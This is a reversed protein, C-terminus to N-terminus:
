MLTLFSSRIATEHIGRFCHIRAVSPWRESAITCGLLHFFLCTHHYVASYTKRLSNHVTNPHTQTLCNEFEHIFQKTPSTCTNHTRIMPEHKQSPDWNVIIYALRQHASWSTLASGSSSDNDRTTTPPAANTQSHGLPTLRICLVGM